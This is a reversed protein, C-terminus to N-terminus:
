RAILRPMMPPLGNAFQVILQQISPTLLPQTSTITICVLLWPTHALLPTLLGYASLLQRPMKTAQPGQMSSYFNRELPRELILKFKRPLQMSKLTQARICLTTWIIFRTNWPQNWTHNIVGKPMMQIPSTLFNLISLKVGIKKRGLPLQIVSTHVM